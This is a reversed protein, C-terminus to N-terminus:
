FDLRSHTNRDRDPRGFISAVPRGLFKQLPSIGREMPALRCSSVPDDDIEAGTSRVM